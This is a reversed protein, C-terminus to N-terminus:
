CLRVLSSGVWELQRLCCITRCVSQRWATKLMQPLYKIASDRKDQRSNGALPQWLVCAFVCANSRAQFFVYNFILAWSHIRQPQLLQNQPSDLALASTKVDERLPLNFLRASYVASYRVSKCSRLTYWFRPQLTWCIEQRQSTLFIKMIICQRLIWM